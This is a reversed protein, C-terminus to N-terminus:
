AQANSHTVGIFTVELDGWVVPEDLTVLRLDPRVNHYEMSRRILQATYPMTVVPVNRKELLFGLGGIHDEHGHTLFVASLNPFQKLLLEPDHVYIDVGPQRKDPPFLLGCDVLICTEATQIITANAGFEGVGGLPIIQTGRITQSM